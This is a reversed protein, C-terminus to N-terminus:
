IRIVCLLARVPGSFLIASPFELPAAGATVAPVVRAAAPTGAEPRPAQGADSGGPETGHHHLEPLDRHSCHGYAATLPGSVPGSVPANVPAKMPATTPAAQSKTGAHAAHGPHVPHAPHAPHAAAMHARHAGAESLVVAACAGGHAFVAGALLALALAANM